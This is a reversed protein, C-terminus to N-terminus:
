PLDHSFLNGECGGGFIIVVDATCRGLAEAVRVVQRFANVTACHDHRHGGLMPQVLQVEHQRLKPHRRSERRSPEGVFIEGSMTIKSPKFQNLM